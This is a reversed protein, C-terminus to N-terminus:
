GLAGSTGCSSGVSSKVLAPMIWNLSTKRPASSRGVEPARHRRLLAHPDGALVVVELVDARARAVVGEELHEAVEREAVVELALRDLEGPLQDGLDPSQGGLPETRWPRVLLVVVGLRQPEVIEPRGGSRTRRQPLFSLKQAIPSM